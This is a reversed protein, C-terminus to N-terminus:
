FTPTGRVRSRTHLLRNRLTERRVRRPKKGKQTSFGHRKKSPFTNEDFISLNYNIVESWFFIFPTHAEHSCLEYDFFNCLKLNAVRFIKSFQVLFDM